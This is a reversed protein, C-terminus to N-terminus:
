TALYIPLVKRDALIVLCVCSFETQIVPMKLDRTIESGFCGSNECAIRRCNYILRAQSFHQQAFQDSFRFFM